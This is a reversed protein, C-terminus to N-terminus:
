PNIVGMVFSRKDIASANFFAAHGLVPLCVLINLAVILVFTVSVISIDKM